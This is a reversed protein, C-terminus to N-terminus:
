RDLVTSTPKGDHNMDDHLAVYYEAETRSSFPESTRRCYPCRMRFEATAATTSTTTPM